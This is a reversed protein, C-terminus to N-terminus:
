ESQENPASVQKTLQFVPGSEEDEHYRTTVTGKGDDTWPTVEPWEFARPFSDGGMAQVMAVAADSVNRAQLMGETIERLCTEMQERTPLNFIDRLTSIPYVTGPNPSSM